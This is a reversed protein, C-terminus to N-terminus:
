SLIKGDGKLKRYVDNDSIQSNSERLYDKRYWVVVASGKDAEKINISADDRLLYMYCKKGGKTLHSCKKILLYCSLYMERVAHGRPNFNSKKKLPNVDFDRYDNRFHWMLSLKWGYM